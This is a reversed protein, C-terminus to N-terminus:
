MQSLKQQKAIRHTHEKENYQTTAETHQTEITLKRPPKKEKQKTKKIKKIRKETKKKKKKKLCFVAYSIRVHSSNLRTSKRDADTLTREHVFRGEFVVAADHLDVKKAHHRQGLGQKRVHQGIAPSLQCRSGTQYALEAKM